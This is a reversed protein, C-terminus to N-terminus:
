QISYIFLWQRFRTVLYPGQWIGTNILVNGKKLRSLEKDADLGTSMRFTCGQVEVYRWASMARPHYVSLRLTQSLFSLLHLSDPLLSHRWQGPGRPQSQRQLCCSWGVAPNALSSGHAPCGQAGPIRLKTLLWAVNGWLSLVYGPTAQDVTAFCSINFKCHDCVTELWTQGGDEIVWYFSDFSYQFPYPLPVSNLTQRWPSSALDFNLCFALAICM